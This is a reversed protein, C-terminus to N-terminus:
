WRKEEGFWKFSRSSMAVSRFQAGLFAFADAASARMECGTLIAPRVSRVVYRAFVVVKLVAHEAELRDLM